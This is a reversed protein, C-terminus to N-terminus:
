VRRHRGRVVGVGLMGIAVVALTAPEPIPDGTQTGGVTGGPTVSGLTLNDYGTSGATAGFLVSQATGAFSVGATTWSCFPFDPDGCGATDNDAVTLDALLDGTGDLGSYIKIDGTAVSSYYLSFGTTFGGAVDMKAGTEDTFFSITDGSPNGEFNGSGGAPASVVGLSGSTFSVGYNVGSNGLSDTGGNYFNNIEATDGVGEFTLVEVSARAPNLAAVAMLSVLGLAVAGPTTDMRKM